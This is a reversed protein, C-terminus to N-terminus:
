CVWSSRRSCTSCSIVELRRTASFTCLSGITETKRQAEAGEERRSIHDMLDFAVRATTDAKIEVPQTINVQETAM